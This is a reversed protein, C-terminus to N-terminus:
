PQSPFLRVLVVGHRPVETEFRGDFAGLDKQRWLDRVRLKGSLNLDAWNATVTGATEGRNFLGAAVSGDEMKKAWVEFSGNQAVRHAQEGLPDQNVELVEDNTLLNLTFDDLQTLDCGILLPACLLCWLSIHTYQENPTLHTDHLSPGWGVKGVVLMDPDNWHGPGAHPAMENQAFGIGSMSGWSDTIDGTTRWCNGGVEAGWKWVDGMGYQCLSYVIDRDVRRLCMGM